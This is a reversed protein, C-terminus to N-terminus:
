VQAHTHFIEERDSKGSEKKGMEGKGWKEGKLRIKRRKKGIEGIKM